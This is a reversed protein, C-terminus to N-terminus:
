IVNQRLSWSTEPYKESNETLVCCAEQLYEHFVTKERKSGYIETSFRLRYGTGLDERLRPRPASGPPRVEVVLSEAVRQQGRPM